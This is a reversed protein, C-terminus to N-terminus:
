RRFWLSLVGAILCACMFISYCNNILNSHEVPINSHTPVSSYAFTSEVNSYVYEYNNCTVNGHVTSVAVRDSKDDRNANSSKVYVRLWEDSKMSFHNNVTPETKSFYVYAGQQSYLTGSVVTNTCM